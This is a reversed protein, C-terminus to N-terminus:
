AVVVILTKNQGLKLIQPFVKISTKLRTQEVVAIKDTKKRPAKKFSSLGCFRKKYIQRERTFTIYHKQHFTWRGFYREAVSLNNPIGCLLSLATIRIVLFCFFSKLIKEAEISKPLSKIETIKSGMLIKIEM